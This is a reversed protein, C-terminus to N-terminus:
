NKATKLKGVVAEVTAGLLEKCIDVGEEKLISLATDCTKSYAENAEEKTLKGDANKAKLEDVFTQMTFRTALTVADIIKQKVAEKQKLKSAGDMASTKADLYNVGKKTLWGIAAVIVSGLASILAVIITVTTENM